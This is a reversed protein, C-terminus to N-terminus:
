RGRAARVAKVPKNPEVEMFTGTLAAVIQATTLEGELVKSELWRDDEESLLLGFLRDMKLLDDPNFIGRKIRDVIRLMLQIRDMGLSILPAVHITRGLLEVDHGVMTKPTEKKEAM